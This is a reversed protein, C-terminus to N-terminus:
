SINTPAEHGAALRPEHNNLQPYTRATTHIYHKAEGIEYGDAILVEKVEEIPQGCEECFM